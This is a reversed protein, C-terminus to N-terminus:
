FKDLTKAPVSATYAIVFLLLAGHPSKSKFKYLKDVPVKAQLVAGLKL